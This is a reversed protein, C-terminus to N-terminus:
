ARAAVAWADWSSGSSLYSMRVLGTRRRVDADPKTDEDTLYAIEDPTLLIFAYGVDAYHEFKEILTRGGDPQRHLVIPELGMQTLLIELEQKAAEDRGHVVFVKNSKTLPARASAGAEKLTKFTDGELTEEAAQLAGLYYSHFNDFTNAGNGVLPLKDAAAIAQAPGSDAQFLAAIASQVRARWANWEPTFVAVNGYESKTSSNNFTFKRGAARLEVIKEKAGEM